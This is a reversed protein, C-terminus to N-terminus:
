TKGIHFKLSEKDTNKPPLVPVDERFDEEPKIRLRHMCPTNAHALPETGHRSRRTEDRAQKAKRMRREPCCKRTDRKFRRDTKGGTKVIFRTQRANQRADTEAPASDAGKRVFRM